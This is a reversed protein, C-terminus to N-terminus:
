IPTGRNISKLQEDVIQTLSKEIGFHRLVETVTWNGYEYLAEAKKDPGALGNKTTGFLNTLWDGM